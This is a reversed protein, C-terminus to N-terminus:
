TRFKHFFTHKLADLATIRTGPDVDLMRSLLDLSETDPQWVRKQKVIATWGRVNRSVAGSQQGQVHSTFAEVVNLSSAVEHMKKYGVIATIERLHTWNRNKDTANSLTFRDGTLMILMIIGASWIDVAATQHMADMLIEPAKFGTTGGGKAKFATTGKESSGFDILKFTNTEFNYLFNDPKVDRHVVNKQYLFDLAQLLKFTYLAINDLSISQLETYFNSSQVM